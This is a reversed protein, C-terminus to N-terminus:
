YHWNKRSIQELHRRCDVVKLKCSHCVGKIIVWKLMNCLHHLLRWFLLALHTFWSGCLSCFIHYIKFPVIIQVDVSICCFYEHFILYERDCKKVENNFFWRCIKHWVALAWFEDKFSYFLILYESMYTPCCLFAAFIVAGHAMVCLPTFPFWIAKRFDMWWSDFFKVTSYFEM